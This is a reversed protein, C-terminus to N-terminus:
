RDAQYSTIEDSFIKELPKIWEPCSDLNLIKWTYGIKGMLITILKNRELVSIHIREDSAIYIKNFYFNFRGGNTQITKEFHM